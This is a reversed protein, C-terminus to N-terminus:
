GVGLAISSLVARPINKPLIKPFLSKLTIDGVIIIRSM